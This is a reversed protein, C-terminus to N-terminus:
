TKIGILSNSTAGAASTASQSVLPRRHEHDASSSSRGIIVIRDQWWIRGEPLKLLKLYIIHIITRHGCRGRKTTQIQIFLNKFSSIIQHASCHGTRRAPSTSRRRRRAAAASGDGAEKLMQLVVVSKFFKTATYNKKNLFYVSKDLNLCM